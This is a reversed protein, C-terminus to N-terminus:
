YYKKENCCFCYRSAPAFDRKNFKLEKMAVLNSLIQPLADGLRIDSYSKPTIGDLSVWIRRVNMEILKNVFDRTLQIGNTILEVECNCKRFAAIMDIIHPHVTPEGIGGFFVVPKPYIENISQLLRDFIEQSMFGMSENWVNRMCTRCELNCRNTPEIYIKSLASTSKTLTLKNEREVLRTVAGTVFGFRRMIEEPLILHGQDDIEIIFNENSYEVM